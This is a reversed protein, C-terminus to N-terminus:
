IYYDICSKIHSLHPLPATCIHSQVYCLCWVNLDMETSFHSLFIECTVDDSTGWGSKRTKHQCVRATLCKLLPQSPVSSCSHLCTLPEPSPSLHTGWPSLLHVSALLLVRTSSCHFSLPQCSNFLPASHLPPSILARLLQWWAWVDTTNSNYNIHVAKYRTSEHLCVCRTNTQALWVLFQKIGNLWWKPVDLGLNSMKSHKKDDTM